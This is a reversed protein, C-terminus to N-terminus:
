SCPNGKNDDSDYYASDEDSSAWNDNDYLGQQAWPDM